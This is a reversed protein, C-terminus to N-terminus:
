SNPTRRGRGRHAPGPGRLLARRDRRSSGCGDPAAGCATPSCSRSPRASSSAWRTRTTPRRGSRGTPRRSTSCSRAGGRQDRLVRVVRRAVRAPQFSSPRAVARSGLLLRGSPWGAWSPSRTSSTGSCGSTSCRSSPMCPSSPVSAGAGPPDSRRRERRGGCRPGGRQLRRRPVAATRDAWAWGHASLVLLVLSAGLVGLLHCAVAAIAVRRSGLRLESWGLLLLAGGAIPLYQAPVLAFFAGSVPTWWRGEQLAPLGYAVTHLLERDKLPSWLSQTVVGLVVMTSVVAVTFPVQRVLRSLRAVTTENAAEGIVGTAM